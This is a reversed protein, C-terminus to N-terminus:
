EEPGKSKYGKPPGPKKRPPKPLGALYEEWHKARWMLVAEAESPSPGVGSRKRLWEDIAPEHWGGLLDDRKPFGGKLLKAMNKALWQPSKGLKKAVARATLM